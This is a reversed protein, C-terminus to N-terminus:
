IYALVAAIACFLGVAACCAAFVKLNRSRRNADRAVDLILRCAPCTDADTAPNCHRSCKTCHSKTEM